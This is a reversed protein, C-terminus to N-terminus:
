QEEFEVAVWSGRGGVKVWARNTDYKVREKWIHWTDALNDAPRLKYGKKLGAKLLIATVTNWEPQTCIGAKTCADRTTKEGAFHRKLVNLAVTNLRSPSPYEPAPPETQDAVVGNQAERDMLDLAHRHGMEKNEIQWPRRVTALAWSFVLISGVAGGVLLAAFGIYVFPVQLASAALPTGLLLVLIGAAVGAAVAAWIRDTLENREKKAPAEVAQPQSAVAQHYIIKRSM